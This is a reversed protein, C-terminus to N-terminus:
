AFGEGSFIMVWCGPGQRQYEEEHLPAVFHIRWDHNPDKMALQEFYFVVPCLEDVGTEKYKHDMEVESYLRKGDKTVTVDGFGVALIREMDLIRTAPSCTLCGIHVHSQPWPKEM